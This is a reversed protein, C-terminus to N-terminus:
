PGRILGPSFDPLPHKARTFRRRRTLGINVMAASGTSTCCLVAITAGAGMRKKKAEDGWM